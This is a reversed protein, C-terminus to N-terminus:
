SRDPCMLAIYYINFDKREIEMEVEGKKQSSRACNLLYLLKKIAIWLFFNEISHYLECCTTATYSDSTQFSHCCEDCPLALCWFSSWNGPPSRASFLAAEWDLHVNPHQISVVIKHVLILPSHWSYTESGKFCLIKLVLLFGNVLIWACWPPIPAQSLYLFGVM